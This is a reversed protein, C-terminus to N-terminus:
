QPLLGAAPRLLGAGSGFRAGHQNRGAARQSHDNGGSLPGDVLLNQKQRMRVEIPVGSDLLSELADDAEKGTPKIIRNEPNVIIKSNTYCIYAISVVCVPSSILWFRALCISRLISRILFASSSM